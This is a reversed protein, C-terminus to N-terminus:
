LITINVKLAFQNPHGYKIINLVYLYIYIRQLVEM